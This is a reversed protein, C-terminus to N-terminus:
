HIIRTLAQLAEINNQSQEKVLEAFVQGVETAGEASRRAAAREVELAAGTTRQVAQAGRRLTDEAKDAAEHAM